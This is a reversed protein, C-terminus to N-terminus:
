RKKGDTERQNEVEKGAYHQIESSVKLPLM